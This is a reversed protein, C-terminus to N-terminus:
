VDPLADEAADEQLASQNEQVLGPNPLLTTKLYVNGSLTEATRGEVYFRVGRIDEMMCLTNVISYVVGREATFDLTQSQRYFNGSLNISAIGSQVEVGLIDDYYVGTPFIETNDQSALVEDILADLRCRPSQARLPTVAREVYELKGSEDPVYLGIADAICKSFDSRRILGDTFNVYSDGINCGTIANGDVRIELADIEPIFSCLTLTLSGLMNWEEMGSFALYNMLTSAFDLTLVREGVANISIVPNELLLDTGEPIASAACELESPGARLARILVSAYDSTDFEIKRLEPVLYKGDTSPFYLAAYREITGTGSELFYDREASYQAYATTIGSISQTLVGSPLDAIPEQRSGVLLSVGRVSELSLLTNSISALLMLKEQESQAEDVDLSLRVTAIGGAFEVDLLSTEIPIFSAQDPLMASNILANVAEECFTEGSSVTISRTISSFSTEDGSVYYLLINKPESYIQEGLIMRDTQADPEPLTEEQAPESVNYPLSACGSLGLSLAATLAGLRMWKRM